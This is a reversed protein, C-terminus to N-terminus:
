AIAVIPALRDSVKDEVVFLSCPTTIAAAAVVVVVVVVIM